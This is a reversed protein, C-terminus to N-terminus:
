KGKKPPKGNRKRGPIFLGKRGLTVVLSKTLVLSETIVIIIYSPAVIVGDPATLMTPNKCTNTFCSLLSPVKSPYTRFMEPQPLVVRGAVMVPPPAEGTATRRM